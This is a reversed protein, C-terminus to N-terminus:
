LTVWSGHSNLPLVIPPFNWSPVVILIQAPDPLVSTNLSLTPILCPLVPCLRTADRRRLPACGRALPNVDRPGPESVQCNSEVRAQFFQFPGHQKQDLTIAWGNFCSARRPARPSRFEAFRTTRAEVGRSASTYVRTGLSLALFFGSFVVVVGGVAALATPAQGARGYHNQAKRRPALGATKRGREHFGLGM